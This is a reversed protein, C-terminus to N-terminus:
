GSRASKWGTATPWASASRSRAPRFRPRTTATTSTRTSRGSSSSSPRRGNARAPAAGSRQEFVPKGDAEVVLRAPASVTMVHLRLETAAAFPGDIVLPHSGEKKKPSLLTGNPPPLAAVASPTIRATSGVPRTIASIWPRTVGRPQNADFIM